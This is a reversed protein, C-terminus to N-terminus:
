YVSVEKMIEPSICRSPVGSSYGGGGDHVEDKKSVTRKREKRGNFNNLIAVINLNILICLLTSLYSTFNGTISPTDHFV